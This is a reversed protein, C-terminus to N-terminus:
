PTVEFEALGYADECSDAAPDLLSLFIELYFEGAEGTTVTCLLGSPGAALPADEEADEMWAPLCESEVVQYRAFAPPMWGHQVLEVGEIEAYRFEFWQADAWDGSAAQAAASLGKEASDTVGFLAVYTGATLAATAYHGEYTTNATLTTVAAGGGVPRLEITANTAPPEAPEPEESGFEPGAAFDGFSEGGGGLGDGLSEPEGGGPGTFGAEFALYDWEVVAGNTDMDMECACVGILPDTDYCRQFAAFDLLDSDCDRDADGSFEDCSDCDDPVGTGNCDVECADLTGNSNCDDCWAVGPPCHDMDYGDPWGNTDCDECEDPKGNLDHDTSTHNAIDCEDPM